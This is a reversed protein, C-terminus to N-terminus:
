VVFELCKKQGFSKWISTLTGWVVGRAMTVVLFRAEGVVTAAPIIALFGGGRRFVVTSTVGGFGDWWAKLFLWLVLLLHTGM